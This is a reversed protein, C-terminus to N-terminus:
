RVAWAKAWVRRPFRVLGPTGGDEGVFVADAGVCVGVMGDHLVLDGRQAFAKGIVPLTADFTAELTGAGYRKLARVSGAATSYKGRFREAIDVGTIAIVANASHLACDHEGWVFPCDVVSALYAALRPEWDSLRM